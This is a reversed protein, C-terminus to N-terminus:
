YPRTSGSSARSSNMRWASTSPSPLGVVLEELAVPAQQGVDVFELGAHAAAVQAGRVVIEEVESWRTPAPTTEFAVEVPPPLLGPGIVRGQQVEVRIFQEVGVGLFQVLVAERARQAVAVQFQLQGVLEVRRGRRSFSPTVTRTGTNNRFWSSGSRKLHSIGPSRVSSTVASILDSGLAIRFFKTGAGSTARCATAARASSKSGAESARSGDSSSTSRRIRPTTMGGPDQFQSAIGADARRRGPPRHGRGCGPRPWPGPWAAACARPASGHPVPLMVPCRPALGARLPGRPRVVGRRRSVTPAPDPVFFPGPCRGPEGCRTRRGALAPM